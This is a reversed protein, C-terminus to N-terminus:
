FRYEECSLIRKDDGRGKTLHIICYFKKKSEPNIFIAQITWLRGVLVGRPGMLDEMDVNGINHLKVSPTSYGEEILQGISDEGWQVFREPQEYKWFPKAMTMSCLTFLSLKMNLRQYGLFRLNYNGM